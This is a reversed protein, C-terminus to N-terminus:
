KKAPAPKLEGNEFLVRACEYALRAAPGLKELDMNSGKRERKTVNRCPKFDIKKALKFYFDKGFVFAANDESRSLMAVIPRPNNVWVEKATWKDKTGEAAYVAGSDTIMFITGDQAAVRFREKLPSPFVAQRQWVGELFGSNLRSRTNDKVDLDKGCSYDWISLDDGALLVLKFRQRTLPLIDFDFRRVGAPNAAEQRREMNAEERDLMMLHSIWNAGVRPEYYVGRDASIVDHYGDPLHAGKAAIEARDAMSLPTDTEPRPGFPKFQERARTELPFPLVHVGCSQGLDLAPWAGFASTSWFYGRSVRWRHVHWGPSIMLRTADEIWFATLPMADQLPQIHSTKLDCWFWRLADDGAGSKKKLWELLLLHEGDIAAYPLQSPAAGFSGPPCEAPDGLLLLPAAGVLISLM